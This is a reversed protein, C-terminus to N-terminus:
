QKTGANQGGPASPRQSKKKALGLDIQACSLCIPPRLLPIITDTQQNCRTCTEAAEGAATAPGCAAPGPIGDAAQDAALMIVPSAFPYREGAQTRAVLNAGVAHENKCDSLHLVLPKTLDVSKVIESIDLAASGHLAMWQQTEPGVIVHLVSSVGTNGLLIIM